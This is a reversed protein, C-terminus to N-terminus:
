VLFRPANRSKKGKGKRVQLGTVLNHTSDEFYFMFGL